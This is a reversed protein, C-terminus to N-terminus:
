LDKCRTSGSILKFNPEFSIISHWVASRLLTDDKTPNRCDVWSWTRTESQRLRFIYAM